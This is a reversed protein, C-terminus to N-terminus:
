LKEIFYYVFVKLNGKRLMLYANAAMEITQYGRRLKSVQCM